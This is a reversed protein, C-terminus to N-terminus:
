CSQEKLPDWLQDNLKKPLSLSDGLQEWLGVIENEGLVDSM